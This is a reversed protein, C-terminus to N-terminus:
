KNTKGKGKWKKGTGRAAKSALLIQRKYFAAMTDVTRVGTV